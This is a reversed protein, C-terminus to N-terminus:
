GAQHDGGTQNEACCQGDWDKGCAQAWVCRPLPHTVGRHVQDEEGHGGPRPSVHDAETTPLLAGQDQEWLLVLCHHLGVAQGEGQGPVSLALLSSSIKGRSWLSSAELVPGWVQGAWSYVHDRGHGPEHLLVAPREPKRHHQGTPWVSLVDWVLERGLWFYNLGQLIVWCGEQGRYQATVITLLQDIQQSRWQSPSLGFERFSKWFRSM